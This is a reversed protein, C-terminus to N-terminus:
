PHRRWENLKHYQNAIPMGTSLHISELYAIAAVIEQDNMDRDPDNDQYIVFIGPHLPNHEHLELFDGPNKTVLVLGERRACDFHIADNQGTTGLDAPVRVTHAAQRLRDALSHSFACDDLYLQLAM